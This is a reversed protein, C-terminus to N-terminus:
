DAKEKASEKIANPIDVHTEGFRSFDVVIRERFTGHDCRATMHDMHQGDRSLSISYDYFSPTQRGQTYLAVHSEYTGDGKSILADLSEVMPRFAMWPFSYALSRCYWQRTWVFSNDGYVAGGMGDPIYPIREEIWSYDSEKYPKGDVDVGESFLSYAGLEVDCVEHSWRNFVNPVAADSFSWTELHGNIGFVSRYLATEVNHADGTENLHRLLGARYEPLATKYWGNEFGHMQSNSLFDNTEGLFVAVSGVPGYVLYEGEEAVAEVERFDNRSYCYFDDAHSLKPEATNGSQYDPFSYECSAYSVDEQTSPSQESTPESSCSILSVSVVAFSAIIRGAGSHRSSRNHKTFKTM